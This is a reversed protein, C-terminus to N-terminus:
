DSGGYENEYNKKPPDETEEVDTNNDSDIYDLSAVVPVGVHVDSVDSYGTKDETTLEM